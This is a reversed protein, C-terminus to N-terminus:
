RARLSASTPREASAIECQFNDCPLFISGNSNSTAAHLVRTVAVARTAGPVSWDALDAVGSIMRSPFRGIDGLVDPLVRHRATRNAAPHQHFEIFGTPPPTLHILKLALAM